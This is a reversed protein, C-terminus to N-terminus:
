PSPRQGANYTTPLMVPPADISRKKARLASSKPQTPTTDPLKEQVALGNVRHSTGEGGLTEELGEINDWALTTFVNLANLATM